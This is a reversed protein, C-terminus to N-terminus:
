MKYMNYSGGLYKVTYYLTSGDKTIFGDSYCTNQKSFITEYTNAKIDYKYYYSIGNIGNFMITIFNNEGNHSKLFMNQCTEKGLQSVPNITTEFSYAKFTFSDLILVVFLTAAIKRM